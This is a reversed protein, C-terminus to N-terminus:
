LFASFLAVSVNASKWIEKFQPSPDPMIVGHPPANKTTTPDSPAGGGGFIWSRRVVVSSSAEGRRYSAAEGRM